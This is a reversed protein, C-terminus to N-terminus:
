KLGTQRYKSTSRDFNLSIELFKPFQKGDPTTQTSSLRQKRVFQEVGLSTDPIDATTLKRGMSAAADRLGPSGLLAAIHSLALNDDVAPFYPYRIKKMIVDNQTM